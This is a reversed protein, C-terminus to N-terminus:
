PRLYRRGSEPELVGTGTDFRVPVSQTKGWSSARYVGFHLHPMTSKGTNGSYGILAGPEIQQGVTVVAGRHQLHYYEGTTLDDHLVVIFNAYRACGPEWCARDHRDQVRVVVGGRAAHVPTGEPMDFDVTWRELGTHSFSAGFGQLVYFSRGSAYPLQYVHSDDHVADLRGVAWDFQYRYEGPGSGDGDAGPGTLVALTLRQGGDLSRTVEASPSVQLDDSRVRLSVTLPWPQLNNAVLEIHDAVPQPEVCVWGLSCTEAFCALPHLLLLVSALGRIM